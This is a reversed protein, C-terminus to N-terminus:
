TSDGHELYAEEARQQACILTQAAEKGNGAEIERVADTIANFLIHYLEEFDM